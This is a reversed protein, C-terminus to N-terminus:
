LLISNMGVSGSRKWKQLKNEAVVAIACLPLVYSVAVMRTFLFFVDFSTLPWNM